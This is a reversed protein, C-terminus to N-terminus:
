GETRAASTPACRPTRVASSSGGANVTSFSTRMGSRRSPRAMPAQRRASKAHQLNPEHRPSGPEDVRIGLAGFPTPSSTSSRPWCMPTAPARAPASPSPRRPRPSPTTRVALFGCSSTSPRSVRGRQERGCRDPLLRGPRWIGRGGGPHVALQRSSRHRRLLGLHRTSRIRRSRGVATYWMHWTTGDHLVPSHCFIRRGGFTLCPQRPAQDLQDRRRVLRLRHQSRCSNSTEIGGTYWM